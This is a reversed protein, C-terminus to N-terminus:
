SLASREKLGEPVEPGTQRHAIRKMSTGRNKKFMNDLKM